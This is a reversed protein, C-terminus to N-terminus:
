RQRTSATVALWQGQQLELQYSETSQLRYPKGDQVGQENVESQLTVQECRVPSSASLALRQQSFQSLQGLAATSSAAFEERTLQLTVLSGQQNKVTASVAADPAFLALVAAPDRRRLSLDLRELWDRAVDRANCKGNKLRAATTAPGSAEGAVDGGPSAAAGPAPPGPQVPAPDPQREPQLPSLTDLEADFAGGLYFGPVQELIVPLLLTGLARLKRPNSQRAFGVRGPEIDVSGAVTQLATAGRNVKDYTGPAQALSQALTENLVWTEHDTGRVGVTGTPTNIRYARPHLKAVWGTILRLGGQVLRLVFRDDPSQNAVFQEMAFSAGPRVAIYGADATRLVAQGDAAAEIREGVYLADGAQLQRPAASDPHSATLRGSIRWVSAFRTSTPVAAGANPAEQAAANGVVTLALCAWALWAFRGARM